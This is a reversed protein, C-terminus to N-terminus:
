PNKTIISHRPPVAATTVAASAPKAAEASAMTHAICRTSFRQSVLATWCMTVGTRTAAIKSTGCSSWAPWVIQPATTTAVKAYEDSM